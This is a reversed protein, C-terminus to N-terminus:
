FKQKLIQLKKILSFEFSTEKSYLFYKDEKKLLKLPKEKKYMKEKYSFSIYNKDEVAKQLFKLEINM